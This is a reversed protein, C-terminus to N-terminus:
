FVEGDLPTERDRCSQCFKRPTGRGTWNFSLNHRRRCGPCICEVESKDYVGKCDKGSVRSVVEDAEFYEDSEM